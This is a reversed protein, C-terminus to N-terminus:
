QLANKLLDRCRELPQRDADNVGNAEEASLLVGVWRLATYCGAISKASGALRFRGEGAPTTKAGRSLLFAVLKPLGRCSALILATLGNSVPPRANVDAGCSDILHQCCLVINQERTGRAKCMEMLLTAHYVPSARDILTITGWQLLISKLVSVTLNKTDQGAVALAHHRTECRSIMANWGRQFATRSSCVLRESQRRSGRAAVPTVVVLSLLAEWLGGDGSMELCRAGDRCTTGLAGLAQPVRALELLSIIRALIDVPLCFVNLDLASASAGDAHGRRHRSM